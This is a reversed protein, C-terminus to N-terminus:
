QRKAAVKIDKLADTAVPLDMPGPAAGNKQLLFAIVEAVQPRELSDPKDAPMSVRIREFVDNVALENWETMFDAGVLPPAQDIGTLDPAHCSACRDAYVAEGRKAQADTYVGDWITRGSQAVRALTATGSLSVCVFLLRASTAGISM